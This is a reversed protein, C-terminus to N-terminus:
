RVMFDNTLRSWSRSVRNMLYSFGENRARSSHFNRTGMEESAIWLNSSYLHPTLELLEPPVIVGGPKSSCWLQDCREQPARRGHFMRAEPASGLRCLLNAFFPLRWAGRKAKWISFNFKAGPGRRAIATTTNGTPIGATTVTMRLPRIKHKRNRRVPRLHNRPNFPV